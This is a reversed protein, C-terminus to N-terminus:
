PRGLQPVGNVIRLTSGAALSQNVSDLTTESRKSDAAPYRKALIANIANRKSEIYSEPGGAAIVAADMTPVEPSVMCQGCLYWGESRRELVAIGHGIPTQVAFVSITVNHGPLFLEPAGKPQPYEAAHAPLALLLFLIALARM